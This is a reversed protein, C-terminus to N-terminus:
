QKLITFVMVLMSSCDSYGARTNVNLTPLTKRETASMKGVRQKCGNTTFITDFM